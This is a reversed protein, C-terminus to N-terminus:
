RVTVTTAGLGYNGYPDPCRDRDTHFEFTPHFEGVVTYTHSYTFTMSGAVRAPPTWPGFAPPCNLPQCPAQALSGDGFDAVACNDSVSHDADSVVVTFQVAEGANVVSPARDVNITIPLNNNAPPSWNFDGCAPDSSNQCDPPPLPLGPIPTTDSPQTAGAGSGSSRSAKSGGSGSAVAAPGSKPLPATSPIVLPLTTPPVTTTTPKSRTTSPAQSAVDVRRPTGGDGSVVQALLGVLAIFALVYLCANIRYGLPLQRWRDWTSELRDRERDDRM